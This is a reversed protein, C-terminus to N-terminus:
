SGVELRGVTNGNVDHLIMGHLGENRIRSAVTGLIRRVERGMDEDFAANSTEITITIDGM